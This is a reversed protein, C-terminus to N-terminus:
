FPQSPVQQLPHQRLRHASITWSESSAWIEREYLMMSEPLASGNACPLPSGIFQTVHGQNYEALAHQLKQFVKWSLMMLHVQKSIPLQVITSSSILLPCRSAPIVQSKQDGLRAAIAGFDPVPSMSSYQLPDSCTELSQM